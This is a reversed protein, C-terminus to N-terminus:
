RSTMVRDGSGPDVVLVAGETRGSVYVNGTGADRRLTGPLDLLPGRGRDQSSIEERGLSSFHLRYISMSGPGQPGAAVLMVDFEAGRGLGRPASVEAGSGTPGFVPDEGAIMIRLGGDLFVMFVSGEGATSSGATTFVATGTEPQLVVEEANSFDAGMGDGSASIVSTTASDLDVEALHGRCLAYLHGDGGMSPDSYALDTLQKLDPTAPVVLTQAGQADVRVITGLGANGVYLFDGVVVAGEPEHMHNGLTFTTRDGDSHLEVIRGGEPDLLLEKGAFSIPGAATILTTGKGVRSQCITEVEGSALDLTFAADLDDDTFSLEGLGPGGCLSMGAQLQLHQLDFDGFDLLQTLSGDWINLDYIGQDRDLLYLQVGWCAVDSINLLNVPVSARSGDTLLLVSVQNKSALWAVKGLGDRFISISHASIDGDQASPQYACILERQGTDPDISYVERNLAMFVGNTELSILRDSAADYDLDLVWGLAGRDCLLSRAGGDLKVRHISGGDEVYMQNRNGDFVFRGPSELGWFDFPSDVIPTSSREGAATDIEILRSRDDDLWWARQQGFEEVAFGKCDALVVDERHVTVDDSHGVKAGGPSTMRAELDNAGLDLPVEVTWTKWGNTTSAPIGAVTVGAVGGPRVVVGRVTIGDADTLSVEPPFQIQVAPKGAAGGGGGGCSALLALTPLSLSSWTILRM